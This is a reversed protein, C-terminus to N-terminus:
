DPTLLDFLREVCALAHDPDCDFRVTRMSTEVRFCGHGTEFIGIRDAEIVTVTEGQGADSQFWLWGKESKITWTRM